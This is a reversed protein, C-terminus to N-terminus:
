SPRANNDIVRDIQGVKARAIEEELSRAGAM